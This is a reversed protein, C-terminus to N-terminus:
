IEMFREVPLLEGDPDLVKDAKVFEKNSHKDEATDYEYYCSLADAVQNREGDVHITDYNFQSLYEWLRM